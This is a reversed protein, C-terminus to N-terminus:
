ASLGHVFFRDLAQIASGCEWNFAAAVHKAKYFGVSRVFRLFHIDDESPNALNFFQCLVSATTFTNDLPVDV